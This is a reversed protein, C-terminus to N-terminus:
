TKITIGLEEETSKIMESIKEDIENTKLTRDSHSFRIHFAMSRELTKPNIYLDFLDIDKVLDKGALYLVREVDAVRTKEDVIISLDREVEPFKALPKFINDKSSHKLLCDVDIEAIAVRVSKFGFYKHTKKAIEGITGITEGSATKILAKRSFHFSMIDEEDEKFSDDCYWDTIGLRYFLDDVVGKLLFFQEGKQGKEAVALGFNLNEKPLGSKESTYIKGVDFIHVEDFYSLSKKCARLLGSVLTRRMLVQNDNMPNILTTHNEDNLGLALADKKSYFSYGRTEDFGSFTAMDKLSRELFRQENKRPVQVSEVLSSPSIKQYGFIRGIEEILDEQSQLDIRVTPVSCLLEGKEKKCEIGLRELINIIEKETIKVGLLKEVKAIKLKITWPKIPKPYVDKVAKIDGECLEEILELARLMGIEALNPDIDREFRYGADSEINYHRKTLRIVSANFSASELIINTTADTIGSDKGGMIGALAIPNKGNTIVIDNECLELEQEDLLRLKEGKGAQKVLIKEISSVVNGNLASGGQASFAHLPQGTELMVYNTIDVINNIPKMGSIKLRSQMWQPSPAIKINDIRVGIYRSCNPTNVIVKLDGNNKFKSLEDNMEFKLNRIEFEKKELANLEQAVGRYNLCDHGRNPLIDINLIKDSLNMYEAFSQGVKTDDNLVMIGEHDGGLGLEDEACIMGSSEVGRIESKKIEFLKEGDPLKAGMLAVPVKQGVKLNPAGCVIILNKTKPKQNKSNKNDSVCVEAINLRDADPHKKVSLVEGVVVKELERSLDEIGEVEFSHVLFLEAVEEASKKTGSLEKLWNYSFKM